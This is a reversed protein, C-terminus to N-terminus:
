WLFPIFKATKEFYERYEEGYKEKRAPNELIAVGSVFIILLTMLVPSYIAWYQGVACSFLYTGWWFVTEGFYNPHKCLAWVGTVLLKGKNEQKSKFYSLQFDAISEIWTGINAIVAGIIMLSLKPKVLMVDAEDNLTDKGTKLMFLGFSSCAGMNLVWQLIFVQFFSVWWYHPGGFRKRFDQYRIDEGHGWNRILIFIGLRLGHVGVIILVLLNSWTYEHTFFFIIVQMTYALGWLSDVISVNTLAVSLLWTLVFVGLLIVFALDFGADGFIRFM